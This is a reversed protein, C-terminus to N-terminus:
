NKGSGQGKFNAMGVRIVAQLPANEKTRPLIETWSGYVRGGFATLSTYEGIAGGQPDFSQESLMYNRFTRGGDTSRALVVDM